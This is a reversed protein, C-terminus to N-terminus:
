TTLGWNVVRSYMTSLVSNKASTTILEVKTPLLSMANDQQLFNDTIFACFINIFFSRMRRHTILFFM